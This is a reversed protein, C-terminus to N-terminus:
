LPRLGAEYALRNMSEHFYQTFFCHSYLIPKGSPLKGVGPRKESKKSEGVLRGLAEKEAQPILADIEEEYILEKISKTQM